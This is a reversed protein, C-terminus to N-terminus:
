FRLFYELGWMNQVNESGFGSKAVAAHMKGVDSGGFAGESRPTKYMKVELHANRWLPTCKNSMQVEFLAGVM